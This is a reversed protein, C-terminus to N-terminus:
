LGRSRLFANIGGGGEHGGPRIRTLSADIAAQQSLMFSHAAEQFEQLPIARIRLIRTLDCVVIETAERIGRPLRWVPNYEDEFHDFNRIGSIDVLCELMFGRQRAGVFTDERSTSFYVGSPDYNLSPRFGDRLISNYNSQNTQHYLSVLYPSHSARALAFQGLTAM